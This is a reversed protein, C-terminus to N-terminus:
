RRAVKGPSARSREWGIIQSFVRAPVGRRLTRPSPAEKTSSHKCAISTSSAPYRFGPHGDDRVRDARGILRNMRATAQRGRSARSGGRPGAVEVDERAFGGALLRAEVARAEAATGRMTDIAVLESLLARALEALVADTPLM